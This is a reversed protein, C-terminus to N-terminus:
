AAGGNRRASAMRILAERVVSEAVSEVRALADGDLADLDPHNRILRPLSEMVSRFITARRVREERVEELAIYNGRDVEHNFKEIQIRQLLHMAKARREPNLARLEDHLRAAPDDQSQAVPDVYPGADREVHRVNAAHWARIEDVSWPPPKRLPCSPHQKRWKTVAPQSVGM